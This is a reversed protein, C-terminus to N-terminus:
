HPILGQCVRVSLALPKKIGRGRSWDLMTFLTKYPSAGGLPEFGQGKFV